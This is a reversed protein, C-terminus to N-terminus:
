FRTVLLWGWVKQLARDKVLQGKRGPKAASTEHDVRPIDEGHEAFRVIEVHVDMGCFDVVGEAGPGGAREWLQNGHNSEFGHIVQARLDQLPLCHHLQREM